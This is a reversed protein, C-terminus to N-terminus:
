VKSLIKIIAFPPNYSQLSFLTLHIRGETRHRFLRNNWPM